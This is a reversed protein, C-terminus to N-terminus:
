SIKFTRVEGGLNTSEKYNIKIFRTSFGTKDNERLSTQFSRHTLFTVRTGLIFKESTNYTM